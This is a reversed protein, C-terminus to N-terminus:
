GHIEEAASSQQRDVQRIKVVLGAIVVLVIALSVGLGTRRYRLEELARVGRAHAKAAISRGGDVEKVVTDLNAAHVGARAKVLADHGGNLDFRAQSVEMGAQEARRLIADAGALQAQLTDLAGRIGAAAKGGEDGAQHCTACVARDDLGVMADGTPKIEHNNHCTACGPVGMQAFAGAHPSKAFLEAPVVHCQGCVNGVWRV